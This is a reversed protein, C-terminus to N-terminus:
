TQNKYAAFFYLPAFIKHRNSEFVSTCKFTSECPHSLFIKAATLLHEWLLLWKLFIYAWYFLNIAVALLFNVILIIIQETRSFYSVVSIRIHTARSNTWNWHTSNKLQLCKHIMCICSLNWYLNMALICIM